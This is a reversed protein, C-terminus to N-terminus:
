EENRSKLASLRDVAWQKLVKKNVKGTPTIPWNAAETFLINKPVKFSAIKGKCYNFVEEESLSVCNLPEVVATVAEGWLDDPVGIVQVAKIKPHGELFVEVERESVNEGGTKIMMKYRGRYYLNGQEDLWGYDGTHFFGEGDMSDRTEQPMKYYGDFLTWGKICIEGGAGAPEREGTEPKVIKLEVGPFPKGNSYKRVNYDNEATRVVVGTGETFGYHHAIIESGFGADRVKDYWEPGAALLIKKASAVNYDKFRPHNILLNFHTDFGGFVTIKEEQIIQLAKEPNFFEMLHVSAGSLLAGMTIYVCGGIHYFPLHGLIRDEQKINLGEVMLHNAIGLLSSHKRLAGKPFATSGSTHLIYCIDDPRGPYILDDTKAQMLVEFIRRGNSLIQPYSYTYDYEKRERSLIIISKLGPFQTSKLRDPACRKAEPIISNILEMYDAGRFADLMILVKADLKNLVFKLEQGRFTINVPVLVAGLMIAAYKVIVWQPCVGLLTAVHDGAQVGVDKLGAAFHCANEYLQRYTMIEQDAVVAPHNPWKGSAVQLARPITKGEWGMM